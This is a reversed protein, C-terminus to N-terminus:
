VVGSKEQSFEYTRLFVDVVSCHIRANTTTSARLAAEDHDVYARAMAHLEKRYVVPNFADIKLKEIMSLRLGVETAILPHGSKIWFATAEVQEPTVLKDTPVEVSASELEESCIDFEATIEEDGGNKGDHECM